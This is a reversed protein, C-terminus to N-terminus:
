LKINIGLFLSNTHYNVWRTRLVPVDTIGNNEYSYYYVPSQVGFYVYNLFIDMNNLVSLILEAGARFRIRGTNNYVITGNGLNGNTLDGYLFSAEGWVWKWIRGGVKQYGIVRGDGNVFLGMIGTTGYFNLNGFPYYTLLGSIQVQEGGNLNSWSGTMGANFIGFQRTAMLSVLYNNFSTDSQRYGYRVSTFPFTYYTNLSSDHWATDTKVSVAPLVETDYYRVNLVRFLPMIRVGPGASLNLGLSFETQKLSYNFTATTTTRPFSYYNQYGWPYSVTSDKVDEVTSYQFLSRKAFNLYNAAVTLSLGPLLNFTAGLHGYYDNGYLDQKGYISDPGMLTSPNGVSFANSVTGGLEVYVQSLVPDSVGLAKKEEDTMKSTLARAEETMGCALWSRYLGDRVYPEFRNFGLAAAYNEAARFPKNTKLFATGLRARLYYYDLGSHLAKRGTTIVSDWKEEVFFRYTLRDSTEFTVQSRAAGIWGFALIFALGIHVRHDSVRAM